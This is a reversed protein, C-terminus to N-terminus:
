RNAIIATLGLVALLVAAALLVLLTAPVLFDSNLPRRRRRNPM